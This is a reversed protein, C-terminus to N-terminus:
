GLPMVSQDYIGIGFDKLVATLRSIQKDNFHKQWKSIQQKPTELQSSKETMRSAKHVLSLVNVPMSEGWGDFIRRIEPGPNVTLNEYHVRITRNTTLPDNLAARHTRCWMAVIKEENTTLGRIYRSTESMEQAFPGRDLDRDMGGTDFNGMKIQSAAIAFPHRLFHIPKREFAIKRIMWPLFGNARCCKIILREARVFDAAPNAWSTWQNIVGGSLIKRILAEAEPWDADAPIYQRWAFGLDNVEAVKDRHFPEWIVASPTAASLVESIWTSGSRPDCSLVIADEPRHRRIRLATAISASRLQQKM